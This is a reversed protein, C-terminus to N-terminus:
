VGETNGTGRVEMILIKRLETKNERGPDRKWNRWATKRYSQSISPKYLKGQYLKNETRRVETYKEKFKKKLSYDRDM